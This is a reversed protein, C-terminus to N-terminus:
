VVTSRDGPLRRAGPLNESRLTLIGRRREEMMELSRVSWLFDARNEKNAADHSFDFFDSNVGIKAKKGYQKDCKEDRTNDEGVEEGDSRDGDGEEEDSNADGDSDGEEEDSGDFREPKKLHVNLEDRTLPTVLLLLLLIIDNASEVRPFLYHKVAFSRDDDDCTAATICLSLVFMDTLASCIVGPVKRVQAICEAEAALQDKQALAHGKGHLADYPKKLEIHGRYYHRIWDEAGSPKTQNDSSIMCDTSGSLHREINPSMHLTACFKISNAPFCALKPPEGCSHSDSSSSSSISASNTRTVEELLFNYFTQFVRQVQFESLQHCTHFRYLAKRHLTLLEAFEACVTTLKTDNNEFLKKAVLERVSSDKAWCWASIDIGGQKRRYKNCNIGGSDFSTSISSSAEMNFLHSSSPDSRLYEGPIVESSFHEGLKKFQCKSAADYVSIAEVDSHYNLSDYM